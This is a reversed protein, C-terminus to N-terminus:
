VFVAAMPLDLSRAGFRPRITSVRIAEGRAPVRQVAAVPLRTCCKMAVASTNVAPGRTSLACAAVGGGGRSRTAGVIPRGPQSGSAAVRAGDVQHASSPGRVDAPRHISAEHPLDDAGSESTACGTPCDDPGRRRDAPGPRLRKCLRPIRAPFTRMTSCQIERVHRSRCSARSRFPCDIVCFRRSLAAGDTCGPNPAAWSDEPVTPLRSGPPERTSRVVHRHVRSRGNGHDKGRRINPQAEKRRVHELLAEEGSSSTRVQPVQLAARTVGFRRRPPARTSVSLMRHVRGVRCSPTAPGERRVHRPRSLRRSLQRLRVRRANRLVTRRRFCAARRLGALCRRRCRGSDPRAPASSIYGRWGCNRGAREARRFGDQLNPDPKRAPRDFVDRTRGTSASHGTGARGRHSIVSYM